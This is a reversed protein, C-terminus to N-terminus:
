GNFTGKCMDRIAQMAKLPCVPSENWCEFGVEPKKEQPEDEYTVTMGETPSPMLGYAQWLSIM